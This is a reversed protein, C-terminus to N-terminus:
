GKVGSNVSGWRTGSTGSGRGLMWPVPSPGWPAWQWRPPSLGAFPLGVQPSAVKVRIWTHLYPPTPWAPHTHQPPSAWFKSIFLSSPKGLEEEHNAPLCEPVTRQQETAWNHRVRQSRFLITHPNSGPPNLRSQHKRAKFGQLIFRLRLKM